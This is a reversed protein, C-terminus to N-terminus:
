VWGVELFRSAKTWASPGNRTSSLTGPSSLQQADHTPSLLPFSFPLTSCRGALRQVTKKWCRFTHRRSLVRFSTTVAVTPRQNFKIRRSNRRRNVRSLWFNPLLLRNRLIAILRRILVNWKRDWLARRHAQAFRGTLTGTGSCSLADVNTEEDFVALGLLLDGLLKLLKRLFLLVSQLRLVSARWLSKLEWCSTNSSAVPTESRRPQAIVAPEGVASLQVAGKASRTREEVARSNPLSTEIATLYVPWWVTELKAFIDSFNASCWDVFYWWAHM